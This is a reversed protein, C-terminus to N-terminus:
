RLAEALERRQRETLGAVTKVPSVECARLVKRAKVPGFRPAKLLLDYVKMSGVAAPPEVLVMAPHLEGAKIAAKMQARLSRVRNAHELAARRQM